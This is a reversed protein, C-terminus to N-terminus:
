CVRRGNRETGSNCARILSKIALIRRLTDSLATFSTDLALNDYKQSCFLVTDEFSGDNSDGRETSDDGAGLQSYSTTKM